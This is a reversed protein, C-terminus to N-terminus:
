RLTSRGVGLQVMLDREPPLKTGPAFGGGKIKEIIMDVISESLKVRKIPQLADM